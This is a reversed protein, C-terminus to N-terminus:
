LGYRAELMAFTARLGLAEGGKPRGPKAAPRWAFTDFHVWDTNEPVFRRLFLAATISGAFGSGGSNVMDALQSKLMDDYGNWLPLRWLPDGVSAGSKELSDAMADDNAFMVPLDPGLAVRAAGTLTAFDVILDPEDEGAKHLADGLILRGEADTNDIEVTIGKRSKLVDGPRFANGAIANEVTPVLLHLHVPLRADMVMQALAIAHAAGGMDKKMLAMGKSSKIDLGGSDFSVGKGVIALRPKGPDGWTLEVLRPAHSRAAARGVSHIMPYGQELADGKTTTVKADYRKAVKEVEKEIEAPGMDEPPTDVMDRVLITAEAARAAADIGAPEPTLLVRPGQPQYDSLYPSFRHQALIWGLKAPGPKRGNALRYTGEPLDAAVKALCWPSLEDVNAVTTVISWDDDSEGPLTTHAYGTKGDMRRAEVLTRIRQPQSKKWDEFSAEDILHIDHASQGKDAALLKTM